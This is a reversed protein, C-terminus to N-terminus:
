WWGSTAASSADPHASRRARRRSLDRRRGRLRGGPAGGGVVEEMEEDDLVSGTPNNPNCVLVLRTKKTVARRLGDRDLAWRGKRLRLSFTDVSGTYHRGLGWAQM